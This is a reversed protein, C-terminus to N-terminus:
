ESRGEEAKNLEMTTNGLLSEGDEINESQEEGGSAERCALIISHGGTSVSLVRLGKLDDSTVETPVEAEQLEGLGLQANFGVGWSYLKGTSSLAFSHRSAAAIQVIKTNDPFSLLTPTPIYPNPLPVGLAAAEAALVAADQGNMETAEAKREAELRGVEEEQRADRLVLAAEERGRSAIMSPHAPGLGVEHGDCRGCSWVEGNSFLFLSHHEGGEIQVVRAGDHESPELPEVLTPSSITDQWGGLSDSIGTQHFSNLGWSFVSGESNVAFSHYSGSGVLVINRLGLREPTM